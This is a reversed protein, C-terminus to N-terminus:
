KGPMLPAIINPAKISGSSYMRPQSYRGRAFNLFFFFVFCGATLHYESGLQNM